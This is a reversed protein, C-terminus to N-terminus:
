RDADMVEEDSVHDVELSAGLSRDPTAERSGRRGRGRAQSCVMLWLRVARWCLWWAVVARIAESIRRAWGRGRKFLSPLSGFSCFAATRRPKGEISPWRNRRPVYTPAPSFIGGVHSPPPNPDEHAQVGGSISGECPAKTVDSSGEEWQRELTISPDDLSLDPTFWVRGNINNILATHPKRSGIKELDGEEGEPGLSEPGEFISWAGELFPEKENTQETHSLLGDLVRQAMQSSALEQGDEALLYRLENLTPLQKQETAWNIAWRLNEQYKQEAEDERQQNLAALGANLTPKDEKAPQEIEHKKLIEPLTVLEVPVDYELGDLPDGSLFLIELLANRLRSALQLAISTNHHRRIKEALPDGSRYSKRQYPRYTDAYQRWVRGQGDPEEGEVFGVAPAAIKMHQAFSRLCWAYDRADAESMQYHGAIIMREFGQSAFQNLGREDRGFHGHQEEFMGQFSFLATEEQGLTERLAEITPKLEEIQAKSYLKDCAQLLRPFIRPLTPASFRFGIKPLVDRWYSLRPTADLFLVVRERLTDIAKTRPELWQIHHAGFTYPFGKIISELLPLLRKHPYTLEGDAENEFPLECSAMKPMKERQKKDLDKRLAELAPAALEKLHERTWGGEKNDSGLLECLYAMFAFLPQPVDGIHPHSLWQEVDSLTLEIKNSLLLDLNDVDDFIVHSYSEMLHPHNMLAQPMMLLYDPLDSEIKERQPWYRCALEPNPNLLPQRHYELLPCGDCPNHNAGGAERAQGFHFCGAEEFRIQQATHEKRQEETAEPSLSGPEQQRGYFVGVRKGQAELDEKIEQLAKYNRTVFITGRPAEHVSTYTKSGGTGATIFTFTGAEADFATLIAARTQRWVQDATIKERPEWLIPTESLDTNVHSHKFTSRQVAQLRQLDIGMDYRQFHEEDYPMKGKLLADDIGKGYKSHWGVASVSVLGDERYTSLLLGMKCMAERVKPNTRWDGDYFLTIESPSDLRKILAIVRSPVGTGAFWIVPLKTAEALAQAKFYGETVGVRTIERFTIEQDSRWSEPYIIGVPSGSSTGGNDAQRASSLWIYKAGRKPKSPRIQLGQIRGEEDCSPILLGPAGALTWQGYKNVYFGPVGQLDEYGILGSDCLRQVLAARGRYGGLSGLGEARMLEIQHASFKRSKLQRLHKSALACSALLARYVRDRQEIPALEPQADPAPIIHPFLPGDSGLADTRIYKGGGFDNDGLYKWGPTAPSSGYCIVFTPRSQSDGQAYSWSKRQGCVPCLGKGSVIRNTYNGVVM